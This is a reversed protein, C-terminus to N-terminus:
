PSYIVQINWKKLKQSATKPDVVAYAFRIVLKEELKQEVGTNNLNKELRLKQTDISDHRGTLTQETNVAHEHHNEHPNNVRAVVIIWITVWSHLNSM